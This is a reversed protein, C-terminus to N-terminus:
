AADAKKAAQEAEAQMKGALDPNSKMLKAQETLNYDATGKMFPNPEAGTRRGGGPGAESGPFLHPAKDRLGEVFLEPTLIKKDQMRINGDADLAQIEGDESLSFLGNARALVDDIAHQNVKGEAAKILANDITTKTLKQNLQDRSSMTEKLQTELDNIKEEYTALKKSVRKEVVEDVKGDKIMQAYESQDFVEMMKTLSEADFGDPLGSLKEQLSNLQEEMKRAKSQEKKKEDLLKKNHSKLSEIESKFADIDDAADAGCSRHSSPNMAYYAEWAQVDYHNTPKGCTHTVSM